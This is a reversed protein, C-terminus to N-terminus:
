QVGELREDLRGLDYRTDEVRQRHFSLGEDYKTIIERDREMRAVLRMRAFEDRQRQEGMVSM